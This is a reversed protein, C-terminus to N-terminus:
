LLAILIASRARDAETLAVDTLDDALATVYDADDCSTGVQIGWLSAACDALKVGNRSVSLVLGIFCWSGRKWQYIEDADYCGFDMPVTTPDAHVTATLTYGQSEWAISDGLMVPNAFKSEM